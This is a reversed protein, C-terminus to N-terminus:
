QKGILHDLGQFSMCLIAVLKQLGSRLKNAMAVAPPILGFGLPKHKIAINNTKTYM